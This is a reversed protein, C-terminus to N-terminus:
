YEVKLKKHGPHLYNYIRLAIRDPLVEELEALSANAVGKASGFRELLQKKREKGVGPIEDFISRVMAKERLGRHYAVAFRHAEDRIRKLLYLAESDEPLQVPVGKGPLYLEEERKALAAVPIDKVGLSNLANLAASLQPKGGDVLVLDPSVAFESEEMGRKFRREIVEQMMAFDNQDPVWKVKFRRYGEKKARANEFVVMSGVSEKGMITSIDFCEIRSPLAPLKLYERLESLAKDRKRREYEHRTKELEFAHVANEEALKILEKKDGRVPVKVEVKKGRKQTLWDALLKQDEVAYPLLIRPPISSATLYYQKVFSSLIDGSGRNMIFNETGVLKGQRIALLEVCALQEDEAAAIVDHDQKSTSIIRQRELVHKAADIRDRIRAAREFEMRQSAEKMDSELENLVEDQSGELFTCIRKVMLAYQEKSVLDACPGLCRKIHYELCPSKRTKHRAFKASSCNRIPFIRRLTDLTERIAYARTYPGYYITGARHVERTLTVRPFTDKVTIALFPYSKDDRFTVNFTPKSRKILDAELILAEVENETVYIDFDVTKDIMRQTKPSYLEKQFYSRMRKRLSRGKGIYLVQASADKFVYVGPKDPVKNLQELLRERALRM